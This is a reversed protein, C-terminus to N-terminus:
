RRGVALAVLLLIGFLAFVLLGGHRRPGLLYTAAGVAVYYVGVIAAIRTALSDEPRSAYATWVLVVSLCLNGLMGYTWAIRLLDATRESAQERSLEAPLRTFGRFLLLANALMQLTGIALVTYRALGTM